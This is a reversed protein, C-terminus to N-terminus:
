ELGELAVRPDIRAARSAPILSALLMAVLLLLPAALFAAPDRPSVEYLLSGLLRTAWAAAVIGVMLGLATTALADSLVMWRIRGGDAGIAMRIGIEPTRLSVL